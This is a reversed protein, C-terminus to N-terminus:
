SFALKLNYITYVNIPNYLACVQFDPIAAMDMKKLPFDFDFLQEYYKVVKPGIEAAYELEGIRDAQSWINFTNEGLSFFSFIVELM